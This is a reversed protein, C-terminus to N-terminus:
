KNTLMIQMTRKEETKNVNDVVGYDGDDGGNDGGDDGGDDGGGSGSDIFSRSVWSRHLSFKQRSILGNWSTIITQTTSTDPDFFVHFSTLGNCNNTLFFLLCNSVFESTLNGLGSAGQIVDMYM